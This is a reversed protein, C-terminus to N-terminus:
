FNFNFYFFSTKTFYFCIDFWTEFGLGKWRYRLDYLSSARSVKSFSLNKFFRFESYIQSIDYYISFYTGIKM